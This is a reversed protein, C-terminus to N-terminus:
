DIRRKPAGRAPLMPLQETFHRLYKTVCKVLGEFEHGCVLLPEPRKRIRSRYGPECLLWILEVGAQAKRDKALARFKPAWEWFEYDKGHRPSEEEGHAVREALSEVLCKPMNERVM